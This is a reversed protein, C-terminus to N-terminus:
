LGKRTERDVRKRFTVVRYLYWLVIIGIVANSVPNLWGQVQEYQGQLLYGAGALISTWILTGAASYIVLRTLSMGSLGAPVSILTRVAPVLRGAFVAKNGHRDFWADAKEVDGPTMTLLRGHKGAWSKLRDKGVWVGVYFWMIAGALSGISGAIIALIINMDGRAASFGALPMILESPIPPFVNEAFMLLMVGLYGSQEVLQTIWDFM